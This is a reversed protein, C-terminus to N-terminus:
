LLHPALDRLFVLRVVPLFVALVADLGAEIAVAPEVACARAGGRLGRRQRILDREAANMKPKDFPNDRFWRYFVVAWVVGLCGFIPFARRWGIRTVADPSVLGMVLAVLPPTFAGGWRASLWMIGQARVREQEPLWITFIKTLNPFCGAEGAGFMFRTVLLSM